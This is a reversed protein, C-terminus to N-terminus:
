RKVKRRYHECHRLNLFNQNGNNKGFPTDIYRGQHMGKTKGSLFPGAVLASSTTPKVNQERDSSRRELWSASPCSKTAVTTARYLITQHFFITILPFPWM